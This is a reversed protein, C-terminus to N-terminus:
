VVKNGHPILNFNVNEINKEDVAYGELNDTAWIAEINRLVLDKGSADLKWQSAPLM